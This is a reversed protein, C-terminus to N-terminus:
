LSEMAESTKRSLLGSTKRLFFALHFSPYFDKTIKQLLEWLFIRVKLGKERLYYLFFFRPRNSNINGIVTLKVGMAAHHWYVWIWWSEWFIYKV